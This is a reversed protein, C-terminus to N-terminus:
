EKNITIISLETKFLELGEEHSSHFNWKGSFENLHQYSPGDLMKVAKKVDDFRCFISFIYDQDDDIRVDLKGGITDIHYNYGTYSSGTYEVAGCEKLVAKVDKVFKAQRKKSIKRSM